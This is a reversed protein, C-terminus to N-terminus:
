TLDTLKDVSGELRPVSEVDNDEKGSKIATLSELTLEESSGSMSEESRETQYPISASGILGSSSEELESESEELEECWDASGEGLDLDEEELEELEEPEGLEGACSEGEM